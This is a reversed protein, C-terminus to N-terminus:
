ESTNQGATVLIRRLGNFRRAFRERRGAPWGILSRAFGGARTLRPRRGRRDAGPYRCVVRSGLTSVCPFRIAKGTAAARGALLQECRNLLHDPTSAEKVPAEPGNIRRSHRM